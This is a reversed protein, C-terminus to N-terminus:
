TGSPSPELWRVLAPPLTTRQRAAADVCVHETRVRAAIKAPTGLRWIEYRIAFRDASLREPMVQVQVRDGCRLPRLYDAESKVIPVIVGAASFFAALEIGAAALSEEYAEHCIRLTHAFFVVGAADTDPFRITREYTFPMAEQYRM